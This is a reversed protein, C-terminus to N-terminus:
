KSEQRGWVVGDEEWKDGEEPATRKAARAFSRTADSCGVRVLPRVSVAASHVDSWWLSKRRV